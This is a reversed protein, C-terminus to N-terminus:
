IAISRVEYFFQTNDSNVVMKQFTSNINNSKYQRLQIDLAKQQKKSIYFNYYKKNSLKELQGYGSERWKLFDYEFKETFQQKIKWENDIQLFKANQFKLVEKCLDLFNDAVLELSIAYEISIELLFQNFAKRHNLILEFTYLMNLKGYNGEKLRNFNSERKKLYILRAM